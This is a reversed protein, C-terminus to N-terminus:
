KHFVGEETNNHPLFEDSITTRNARRSEHQLIMVAGFNDSFSCKTHFIIMSRCIAARMFGISRFMAVTAIHCEIDFIESVRM